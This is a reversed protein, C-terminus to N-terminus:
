SYSPNINKMSHIAVLNLENFCVISIDIYLDIRTKKIKHISEFSLFLGHVM